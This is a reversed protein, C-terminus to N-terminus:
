KILRYGSLPGIEYESQKTEFGKLVDYGQFRYLNKAGVRIDEKLVLEIDRFCAITINWGLIKKKKIAGRKMLFDDSLTEEYNLSMDRVYHSYTRLETVGVEDEYEGLFFKHHRYPVNELREVYHCYTLGVSMDVGLSLQKANKKQLYSFPSNLGFAEQNDLSCLYDMDRGWVMLSYLPHRTRRFEKRHDFVFNNLAGVKSRTNKYSFMIGKCFDWNYMPFLLMGDEGVIRKLIDILENIFEDRAERERFHLDMQARKIIQAVDSAVYLINGEEIGLSVLEEEIKRCYQICSQKNM